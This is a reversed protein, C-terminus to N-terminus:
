DKRLAYSFIPMEDHMYYVIHTTPITGQNFHIQHGFTPVLFTSGRSFRALFKLQIELSCLSSRGGKSISGNKPIESTIM